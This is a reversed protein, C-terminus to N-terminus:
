GSGSVAVVVEAETGKNKLSMGSFEPRRDPDIPGMPRAPGSVERAEAVHEIAVDIRGWRM